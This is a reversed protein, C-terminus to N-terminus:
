PEEGGAREWWWWWWVRAGLCGASRIAASRGGYPLGRFGGRKLLLGPIFLLRRVLAMPTCTDQSCGLLLWALPHLVVPSALATLDPTCVRGAGDQRNQLLIVIVFGPRILRRSESVVLHTCVLCTGSERRLLITRKSSHTWFVYIHHSGGLPCPPSLPPKPCM